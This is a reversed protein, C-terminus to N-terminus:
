SPGAPWGSRPPGGPARRPPRRRRGLLRQDGGLRLDQSCDKIWFIVEYNQGAITYKIDHAILLHRLQNVLLHHLVPVGLPGHLHEAVSGNVLPASTVIHCNHQHAQALPPLCPLLLPSQSSAPRPHPLFTGLFLLSPMCSLLVPRAPNLNQQEGLSNRGSKQIAFSWRGASVPLSYADHHETFSSWKGQHLNYLGHRVDINLFL